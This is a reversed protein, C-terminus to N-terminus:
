YNSASTIIVGLTDRRQVGMGYRSKAVFEDRSRDKNREGEVKPLRRMAAMIPKTQDDLVCMCLNAVGDAVTTTGDGLSGTPLRNSFIVDWGYINMAMRMGRGLGQELIAAGFPSVDSTITVLNNLTAEVVPDCIFIRGEAPVNAKNFALRMAVLQGLAFVNNTEASAIRHPFGNITNPDADTQAANATALFKTEWSEQFARTSEAARQGM